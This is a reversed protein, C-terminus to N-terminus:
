RMVWEQDEYEVEVSSRLAPDGRLQYAVALTKRLFVFVPLGLDDRAVPHKVAASENSLGTIFVTFGTAQKDFDSWIVAIDRANDRGQLLRNEVGELPELFPYNSAHREKIREFVIPPVGRGAPLIQFTNTMLECRPYFAVDQGTRNTVTLIMYWFRTPGNEGWPLVLQQPHEYRAEVTWQGPKQVVAPEPAAVCLGALVAMLVTGYFLRKKM